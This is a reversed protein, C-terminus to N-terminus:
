SSITEGETSSSPQQESSIGREALQSKLEEIERDCEELRKQEDSIDMNFPVFTSPNIGRRLLVSYHRELGGRIEFLLKTFQNIKARINQEDAKIKQEINYTDGDIIAASSIASSAKSIGEFIDTSLTLVQCIQEEINDIDQIQKKSNDKHSTELNLDCGSALFPNTPLPQQQQQMEIEQPQSNPDVSTMNGAMDSTSPIGDQTSTQGDLNPTYEEKVSISASADTATLDIPINALNAALSGQTAAPLSAELPDTIATGGANGAGFTSPTEGKMAKQTTALLTAPDLINSSDADKSSLTNEASVASPITTLAAIPDDIRSAGTQLPDTMDKKNLETTSAQPQSQSQSQPQQMGKMITAVLARASDLNAKSNEDGDGSNDKGKKNDSKNDAFLGEMGPISIGYDELNPERGTNTQSNINSGGIIDNAGSFNLDQNGSTLFDDIDLISEGGVGGSTGGTNIISNIDDLASSSIGQNAAQSNASPMSASESTLNKFLDSALTIEDTNTGQNPNSGGKSLDTNNNNNNNNNPGQNAM